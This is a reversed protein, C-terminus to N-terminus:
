TAGGATTTVATLTISTGEGIAKGGITGTITAVGGLDGATYTATYTGDNHDTVPGITGATAYLQVTGQSTTAPEGMAYSQVTLLVTSKGDAPVETPTPTITANPPAKSAPPYIYLLWQADAATYGLSQWYAVGQDTTMNGDEILKGVQAATLRKTPTAQEIEWAEVFATIATQPIGLVGLETTVTATTLEGAIFAARIRNIAANRMTIIRRAEYTELIFPVASPIYGLAELASTAEDETIIQAEWDALVMGETEAKATAVSGAAETSAFAAAQDAPYGSALLWQNATDATVTGAKVAQAIQYPALFHLYQLKVLPYFRPNIRSQYLVDTLEDDTLYGRHNLMVATEVGMSDGATEFLLEFQEPMGGAAEYLVQADSPSMRGKIAVDIADAASMTQWSLKYLDPLFQDRVRSYYIVTNLEDETIGYTTGLSEGLTWPYPASETGSVNVPTALYSGRHWLRLADVIGYSEGTETVLYGFRTPDLGSLAAEATATDSDMIQRIVMDALVAPTLPIDQYKANAANVQAQTAASAVATAVTRVAARATDWVSIISAVTEVAGSALGQIATLLTSGLSQDEGTLPNVSM